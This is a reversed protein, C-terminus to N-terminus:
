DTSNVLCKGSLEWLVKGVVADLVSTVAASGVAGVVARWCMGFMNGCMTVVFVGAVLWRLLSVVLLQVFLLCSCCAGCVCGCCCAVAALFHLVCCSELL